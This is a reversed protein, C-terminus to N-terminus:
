VRHVDEVERGRQRRRGARLVRSRQGAEPGRGGDGQADTGYGGDNEIKGSWDGHIWDGHIIQHAVVDLDTEMSIPGDESLVTVTIVTKYFKRGEM